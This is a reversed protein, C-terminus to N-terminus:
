RVYYANVRDGPLPIADPDYVITNDTVTYGSTELIGNRFLLLSSPPSPTGALVFTNNSGDVPGSPVEPGSYVPGPPPIPPTPTTGQGCSSCDRVNQSPDMPILGQIIARTPNGTVGDSNWIDQVDSPVSPTPLTCKDGKWNPPPDPTHVTFTVKMAQDSACAACMRMRFTSTQQPNAYDLNFRIVANQVQPAAKQEGNTSSGTLYSEVITSKDADWPVLAGAEYKQLTIRLEVPALCCESINCHSGGMFANCNHEAMLVLQVPNDTRCQLQKLWRDRNSEYVDRVAEAQQAVALWKNWVRKLGRYTRVFYDCDYCPHCDQFLVVASKAQDPPLPPYDYNEQDGDNTTALQTRFCDDAEIVFNGSADPEIANIRRVLPVTEACGPQRGMGAGPVADMNIQEVYRDGDTRVTDAGSMQINYGSEFLVDLDFTQLGIIISRVRSPVRDATRPDLIGTGAVLATAVLRMVVTYGQWQYITRTGWPRTIAASTDFTCILTGADDTVVLITDHVELHFPFTYACDADEYSLYFDLIGPLLPCDEIFPYLSGGGPPQNVATRTQM